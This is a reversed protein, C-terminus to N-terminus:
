PAWPGGYIGAALSYGGIWSNQDLFSWSFLGLLWEGGHYWFVGRIWCWWLGGFWDFMRGGHFNPWYVGRFVGRIWIKIYILLCSGLAFLSRVLGSFRLGFLHERGGPGCGCCPFTCVVELHFWHTWEGHGIPCIERPGFPPTCYGPSGMIALVVASPLPASQDVQWLFYWCWRLALSLLKALLFCLSSSTMVKVRVSMSPTYCGWWLAM